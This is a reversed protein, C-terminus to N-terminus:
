NLLYRLRRCIGSTQFSCGKSSICSSCYTKCCGPLGRRPYNPEGEWLVKSGSYLSPIQLGFTALDPAGRGDALSTEILMMGSTSAGLSRSVWLTICHPWNTSWSMVWVGRKLSLLSSEEPIWHQLSSPEAGTLRSTRCGSHKGISIGVLSGKKRRLLWLHMFKTREM